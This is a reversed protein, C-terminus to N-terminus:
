EPLTVAVRRMTADATLNYDGNEANVYGQTGTLLNTNVGNEIFSGEDLKVYGNVAGNTNGDFFNFAATGVFYGITSDYIGYSGNNTIRNGVLLTGRYCGSFDSNIGHAVNGDFICNFMVWGGYDLSAGTSNGSFICGIFVCIYAVNIYQYYGYGTNDLFSCFLYKGTGSYNCQCGHSGNNIFVCKFFNANVWSAGDFGIGGNSHFKCNIFTVTFSDSTADDVGNATAGKIEFNAFRSYSGGDSLLCNTAVSNGDLVFRTGDDVGSANCGIFNILGSITHGSAQLLIGTSLQQTGRCYVIDSAVATTAPTQLSTFANEWSSGDNLGTAAPDVYYTAM